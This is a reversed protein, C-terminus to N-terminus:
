YVNAMRHNVPGALTRPMLLCILFPGAKLFSVKSPFYFIFHDCYM